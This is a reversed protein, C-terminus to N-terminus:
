LALYCLAGAIACYIAFPLLTNTKFYRTLFRVSLYAGLAAFLAGVIAPLLIAAPASLLHPLKLVAAALIIPTALLFSFRAAEENSLGAALGGTITAGTRSFGPLLALAQMTGIAVSQTWSLKADADISRAAVSQRAARRRMFEGALLLLGNLFLFAAVLKPNSFLHELKKQFVLGLLGAPITGLILMWGLRASADDGITRTTLSRLVGVIIRQWERWYFGLLVLATALHTLVLFPLFYESAQDIHWGLLTPLIISHGLSSIPFLESVGQLVGLIAAQM